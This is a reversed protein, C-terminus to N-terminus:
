PCKDVASPQCPPSQTIHQQSCSCQHLDINQVPQWAPQKGLTRGPRQFLSLSVAAQGTHAVWTKKRHLLLQQQTISDICVYVGSEGFYLHCPTGQRIIEYHHRASLPLAIYHQWFVEASTVIFERQGTVATECAFTRHKHKHTHQPPTPPSLSTPPPCSTPMVACPKRVVGRCVQPHVLM